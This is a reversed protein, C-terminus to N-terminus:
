RCLVLDLDRRHYARNYATGVRLAGTEVLSRLMTAAILGHMGGVQVYRQCRALLDKKSTYVLTRRTRSPVGTASGCQENYDPMDVYVDTLPALTDTRSYKAPCFGSVQVTPTQVQVNVSTPPVYACDTHSVGVFVLSHVFFAYKCIAHQLEPVTDTIDSPLMNEIANMEAVTLYLHAYPNQPACFERVTRAVDVRHVFAGNLAARVQPGALTRDERHTWVPVGIEFDRDRVSEIEAGLTYLQVCTTSTVMTAGQVDRASWKASIVQAASPPYRPDHTAAPM